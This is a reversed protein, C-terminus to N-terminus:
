INSDNMTNVNKCDNYIIALSNSLLVTVDYVPVLIHHCKIMNNQGCTVSPAVCRTSAWQSRFIAGQTWVGNAIPQILIRHNQNFHVKSHSQQLHSRKVHGPSIKKESNNLMIMLKPPAEPYVNQESLVRYKLLTTNPWKPEGYCSVIFYTDEGIM